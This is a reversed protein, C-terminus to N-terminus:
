RGRLGASTPGAAWLGGAWSAVAAMTRPDRLVSEHTADPVLVVTGRSHARVVAEYEEAEFAEDRSGVVVLLPVRVSALAPRHDAPTMSAMARFSYSRLPVESPLNFFLTHLGNFGTIRVTNMLVLGLLRPVHVALAEAGPEAAETRTTPSQHGLHPALLLYGDVPPLGPKMAYRLAIGGGMSHGALIVKGGPQAARIERVVDGLDDEYQGIYATDGPPGGSAGHGRLDVAVVEGGTAERLLGSSRNLRLSAGLVGHVYVVTTQSGAALYQAALTTGDRMRFSRAAAPYPQEFGALWEELAEPSVEMPQTFQPDSWLIMVFAAAFVAGALAAMAVFTRVFAKRLRSM